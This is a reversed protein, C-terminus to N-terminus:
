FIIGNLWISKSINTLLSLEEIEKQNSYRKTFLSIIIKMKDYNDNLEKQIIEKYIGNIVIITNLSCITNSNLEKGIINIMLNDMIKNMKKMMIKEIKKKKSLKNEKINLLISRILVNSEIINNICKDIFIEIRGILKIMLNMNKENYKILSALCDYILRKMEEDNEEIMEILYKIMKREIGIIEKEEDNLDRIKMEFIKLLLIKIKKDIIEEEIDSIIMDLLEVGEEKMYDNIPILSILHMLQSFLRYQIHNINGDISISELDICDYLYILVENIQTNELANIIDNKHTYSHIFLSYVFLINSIVDMSYIGQIGDFQIEIEPYCEIEREYNYKFHQILHNNQEICDNQLLYIISLNTNSLSLLHLIKIFINHNNLLEINRKIVETGNNDHILYMIVPLFVGLHLYSISKLTNSLSKIKTLDFSLESREFICELLTSISIFLEQHQLLEFLRELFLDNVFYGDFLDTKIFFKLLELLMRKVENLSDNGDFLIECVFPFVTGFLFELYDNKKNGSICFDYLDSTIKVLESDNNYQLYSISKSIFENIIDNSEHENLKQVFKYCENKDYDIQKQQIFNILTYNTKNLIM